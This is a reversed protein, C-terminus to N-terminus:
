NEPRRPINGTTASSQGSALKERVRQNDTILFVFRYFSLEFMHRAQPNDFMSGLFMSTGIRPMVGLWGLLIFSIMGLLAFLGELASQSASSGLGFYFLSANVVTVLVMGILAALGM